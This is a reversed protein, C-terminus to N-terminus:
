VCGKEDIICVIQAPELKIEDTFSIVTEPNSYIKQSNNYEIIHFTQLTTTRNVFFEAKTGDSAEYKRSM